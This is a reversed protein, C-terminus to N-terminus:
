KKNEKIQKTANIINDDLIESIIDEKRKISLLDSVIYDKSNIEDTLHCGNPFVVNLTKDIVKNFIISSKNIVFVSKQYLKENEDFFEVIIKMPFFITGVREYNNFSIRRDLKMKGFETYAGYREMHDLRLTQLNFYYGLDPFYLYSIGDKIKVEHKLDKCEEIVNKYLVSRRTIYNYDMWALTVEPLKHLNNRIYGQSIDALKINKLADYEEEIKSNELIAQETGYMTLSRYIGNNFSTEVKENFIYKNDKKTYLYKSSFFSSNNMIYKIEGYAKYNYEEASDTYNSEELYNLSVSNFTPISQLIKFVTVNSEAFIRSSLFILFITNFIIKRM